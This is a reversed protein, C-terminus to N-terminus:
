LREERMDGISIPAHQKDPTCESLLNVLSPRNVSPRILIGTDALSLEVESGSEFGFQVALTKPIRVGISNGWKQVTTSM